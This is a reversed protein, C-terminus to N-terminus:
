LIFLAADDGTELKQMLAGSTKCPNQIFISFSPLSDTGSQAAILLSLQQNERDLRSFNCASSCSASLLSSFYRSISRSASLSRELLLFSSSFSLLSTFWALKQLPVRIGM